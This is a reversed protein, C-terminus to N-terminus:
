FPLESWLKGRQELELRHSRRQAQLDAEWEDANSAAQEELLAPWREPPEQDPGVAAPVPQRVGTVYFVAPATGPLAPQANRPAIETRDAAEPAPEAPLLFPRREVAPQDMPPELWPKQPTGPPVSAAAAAPVSHPSLEAPEALRPAAPRATHLQEEGPRRAPPRAVPRPWAVEPKPPRRFVQAALSAPLGSPQQAPSVARDEEVQGSTPQGVVASSLATSGAVPRLRLRGPCAARSPPILTQPTPFAAADPGPVGEAAESVSHAHATEEEARHARRILHMPMRGARPVARRAKPAPRLPAPPSVAGPAALPRARASAVTLRGNADLLGPARARIHQVWHAPPSNPTRYPAGASDQQGARGALRQAFAALARLGRAAVGWLAAWISLWTM